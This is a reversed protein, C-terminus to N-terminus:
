SAKSEELAPQTGRVSQKGLTGGFFTDLKRQTKGTLKRKAFYADWEPHFPNARGQIKVHRRIPTSATSYLCLKRPGETSFM